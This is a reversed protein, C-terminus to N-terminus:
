SRRVSALQNLFEAYPQSLNRFYTEALLVEAAFCLVICAREGRDTSLWRPEVSVKVPSNTTENTVHACRTLVEFLRRDERADRPFIGVERFTYSESEGAHGECSSYTICGLDLHLALVLDRVGTELVGVFAPDWPTLIYASTTGGSGLVNIHGSAGVKNGESAREPSKERTQWRKVFADLGDMHNM